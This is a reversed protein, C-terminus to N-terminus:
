LAAAAEVVERVRAPVRALVESLFRDGDEVGVALGPRIDAYRELQPERFTLRAFETGEELKVFPRSDKILNEAPILVAQTEVGRVFLHVRRHKDINNLTELWTLPDSGPSAPVKRFPQEDRMFDFVDSEVGNLRWRVNEFGAETTQIPFMIGREIKDPLPDQVRLAFQYALNDLTARLHHLITGFRFSWDPPITELDYARYVHERNDSELTMVITYPRALFQAAHRDLLAAQKESWRLRANVAALFDTM